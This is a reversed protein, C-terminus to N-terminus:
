LNLSDLSTVFLLYFGLVLVTLFYPIFGFWANKPKILLGEKHWYAYSVLPLIVLSSLLEAALLAWALHVMNQRAWVFGVLLILCKFLMVRFMQSLANVGKLVFAFSLGYLNFVAMMLMLIMFVSSYEIKDHTWYKFIPEYLPLFLVIGLCLIPAVRLRIFNLLKELAETDSLSFNKQMEPTYTNLLLNQALLPTNVITRVTAFLAIAAKDFRFFSLLLVLGDTSLKEFFNSAYLQTAKGFCMAGLRINKGTFVASVPYHVFLHVLYFIAMAAIIASDAYLVVAFSSGQLLLWSLVTIELFILVVEFVMNHWVLGRAEKAGSYLRQGNQVSAAVIYGVLCLPLYTFLGEQTGFLFFSTGPWLMFVFGLLLCIGLSFLLLFSIGASLVGAAESQSQHFSLNYQNLIYRVYGDSLFLIIARASLIIAWFSFLEAGWHSLM